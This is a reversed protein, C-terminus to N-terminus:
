EFPMEEDVQSRRYRAYKDHFYDERITVRMENLYAKYTGDDKRSPNLIVDVSVIEVDNLQGISEEDLRVESDSTYMFIKPPWNGFAVKVPIYHKPEDGEERPQQVRVNWGAEALDEAADPDNVYVCFTRDGGAGWKEGRFNKSFIKTDEIVVRGRELMRVM